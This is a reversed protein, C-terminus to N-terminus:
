LANRSNSVAGVLQALAQWHRPHPRYGQRIKSAYWKSVGISARIVSMSVSALLPQIKQTFCNPLSGSHDFPNWSHQALANKRAKISRKVQAAPGNATQRGIRAADLMHKTADDVACSLCKTSEPGITKGCESCLHDRRPPKSQPSAVAAGKAQRKNSQTLRTAFPIDPRRITKWFERAVLEAVPAVARSWIPISQALRSAFEVSLRCNGNPEEIFWRPNLYERTILDLVYLDVEARIPEMVDSALSDRATTDVHLAGLGPPGLNDNASLFCVNGEDERGRPAM